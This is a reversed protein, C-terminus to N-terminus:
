YFGQANQRGKVYAICWLERDIDSLDTRGAEVEWAYFEDKAEENLADLQEQTWNM